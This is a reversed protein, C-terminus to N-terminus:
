RQLFVIYHASNILRRETGVAKLYDKKSFKLGLANNTMKFEDAAITPCHPMYVTKAIKSAEEIEIAEQYGHFVIIDNKILEKWKKSKKLKIRRFLDPILKHININIKSIINKSKIISITNERLSNPETFTTINVPVNEKLEIKKLGELFNYVYGPPGGGPRIYCVEIFVQIKRKSM